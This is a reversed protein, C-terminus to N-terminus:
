DDLEPTNANAGVKVPDAWQDQGDMMTAKVKVFFKANPSPKAFTVSYSSNNGKPATVTSDVPKYNGNKKGAYFVQYSAVGTEVNSRWTATVTGKNLGAGSASFLPAATPATINLPTPSVYLTEFGSETTLSLALYQANTRATDPFTISASSSGYGAVTGGTAALAWGTSSRDLSPPAGLGTYVYVKYGTILTSVPADSAAYGGTAQAASLPTWTATVTWTGTGDFNGSHSASSVSSFSPKAIAAQIAVADLGTATGWSAGNSTRSILAFKGTSDEALFCARDLTCPGTGNYCPCGDYSAYNLNRSIFYNGAGFTACGHIIKSASYGACGPTVYDAIPDVSGLDCGAQSSDCTNQAVLLGSHTLSPDGKGYFWMIARVNAPTASLGSFAAHGSNTMAVSINCGASTAIPLNFILALVSLTLFIRKM